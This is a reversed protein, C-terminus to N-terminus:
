LLWIGTFCCSEIRNDFNYNRLSPTYDTLHLRDGGQNNYDYCDMSQVIASSRTRNNTSGSMLRSSTRGSSTSSVSGSSTELSASYTTVVLLSSTLLYLKMTLVLHSFGM